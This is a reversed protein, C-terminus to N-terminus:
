EHKVVNHMDEVMKRIDVNCAKNIVDIKNQDIANGNFMKDCILRVFNDKQMQTMVGVFKKIDLDSYKHINDIIEPTLLKEYSSQLGLYYVAAKDLIYFAGNEAFSRNQNVIDLLSSYLIPMLEGYHSFSLKPKGDVSLTLSGYCMSIVRIMSNPSPETYKADESPNQLATVFTEAPSVVSTETPAEQKKIYEMISALQSKLEENQSKLEELEKDYKKASTNSTTSNTATAM